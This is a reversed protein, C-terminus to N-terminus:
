PELMVRYFRQGAGIATADLYNMSAGVSRLGNTLTIWNATNLNTRWELSYSRGPLTRWVLRCGQANRRTSLIRPEEPARLYGPSGIDGGRAATVAGNMGEVSLVDCCPIDPHALDFTFSVGPTLTTTFWNAQDVWDSDETAGPNWLYIVDNTINLGLGGGPYTIIQLDV